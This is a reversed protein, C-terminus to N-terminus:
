RQSPFRPVGITTWFCFGVRSAWGVRWDRCRWWSIYQIHHSSDHGHETDAGHLISATIWKERGSCARSPTPRWSSPKARRGEGKARQGGFRACGLVSQACGNDGGLPRSLSKGLRLLTRSMNQIKRFDHSAGGGLDRATQVHMFGLRLEAPDNVPPEAQMRIHAICGFRM